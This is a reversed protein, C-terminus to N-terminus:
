IHKFLQKEAKYVRTKIQRDSYNFEEALQEYTRGDLLRRKLIARDTENFIWLDILEIWETRSLNFADARMIDEDERDVFIASMPLATIAEAIRSNQLRQKPCKAITAMASLQPQTAPSRLPTIAVRTAMTTPM